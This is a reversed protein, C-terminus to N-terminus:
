LVRECIINEIDNYQHYSIRVLDINNEALFNNKIKDNQQIVDFGDKGGFADVVEFHQRGDYEIILNQNPLFFDFPLKRKKGVCHQFTKERVFLINKECLVKGIKEEGKSEKCIPCGQKKSLHNNPTVSFDGHLKCTIIVHKQSSVYNTKNYEFKDGFLEISKKIFEDNTKNNLGACKQCGSGYLHDHPKQYFIGHEPCIINIKNRATVYVSNSYDYKNKHISKARRIFEDTSLKKM